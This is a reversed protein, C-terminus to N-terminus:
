IALPDPLDGNLSLMERSRKLAWDYIQYAEGLQGLLWEQQDFSLPAETRVAMEQRSWAQYHLGFGALSEQCSATVGEVYVTPPLQYHTVLRDYALGDEWHVARGDYKIAGWVNKGLYGTLAQVAVEPGKKALLSEAVVPVVRVGRQEAWVMAEYTQQYAMNLLLVGKTLDWDGTRYCSDAVALPDRWTTMGFMRGPQCGAELLYPFPNLFDRHPEFGETEKILYGGNGGEIELRRQNCAIGRGNFYREWVERQRSKLPQSHGSSFAELRLMTVLWAATLTRNSGLIVGVWPAESNPGLSVGLNRRVEQDMLLQATAIQEDSWQGDLGEPYLAEAGQNFAEHEM